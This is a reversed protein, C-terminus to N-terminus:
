FGCYNNESNAMLRIWRLCEKTPLMTAEDFFHSPMTRTKGGIATLKEKRFVSESGELNITASFNEGESLAERFAYVGIQHAEKSDRESVVGFARQMYGLTDSRVRKIGTKTRLLEAINDGLAGSGSLQVNGHSDESQSVSLLNNNEDVAGESLAILCRGYKKYCRKVRKALEELSIPVEPIVVIHPGDDPQNRFAAAAATLFGAHRGMTVGIHIGALSKQDYNLGGFATAVYLAASGYGPTHDNLVLDNDITKPVHVLVTKPNHSELIALTSSTDNGGIYFFGNIKESKLVEVIKGCLKADPKVRTSGLASGPTKAVANLLSTPTQTLEIFQKKELGEIGNKAGLITKVGSLQAAEVIGALSQNIVATPGGGQAIVIKEM